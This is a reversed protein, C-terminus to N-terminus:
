GASRLMDIFVGLLLVPAFYRLLFLWVRYWVTPRDGYLEARTFRRQLLWGTFIAILIAGLPMM